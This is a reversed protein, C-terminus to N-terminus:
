KHFFKRKLFLTGKKVWNQKELFSVNQEQYHIHNHELWVDLLLESIFGYVRSEYANWSSIDIQCEIKELISFLWECYDNYLDYRMVCMNFMHAWSRSMVLDWDKHYSPYLEQIVKEAVILGDKHHAHLYHSKNTEIYYNRRDAVIVPTHELLKAWDNSTLVARRKGGISCKESRTFMRRYHVLGIYDASLNKWAWYMATLECYHVNKESINDGTDDKQYGLSKKGEAGVQIPLYCKDDPLWSEKHAAIMIKINM